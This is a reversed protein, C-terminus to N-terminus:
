WFSQSVLLISTSSFIGEYFFLKGEKVSKEHSSASNNEFLIQVWVLPVEREEETLRCNYLMFYCDTIINRVGKIM